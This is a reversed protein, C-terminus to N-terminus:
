KLLKVIEICGFHEAWDLADGDHKNDRIKPNAKADLLVKAADARCGWSALHLATVDADWHTWMSDPNAGHDLLWKLAITDGRKAMIHLSGGSNKLQPNDAILRNATEWDRLSLAAILDM